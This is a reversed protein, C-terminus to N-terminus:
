SLPLFFSIFVERLTTTNPIYNDLIIQGDNPSWLCTAIRNANSSINNSCAVPFAFWHPPKKGNVLMTALTTRANAPINVSSQVDFKIYTLKGCQLFDKRLITYSTSAPTITVDSISSVSDQLSKLENGINAASVNTGLILNTGASIAATVKYLRGEYLLFEGVSHAAATPSSEVTAIDGVVADIKDFNDSVTTLDAPDGEELVTLGLKNSQYSM